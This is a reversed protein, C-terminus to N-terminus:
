KLTKKENFQKDHSIFPAFSSGLFHIRPYPIMNTEIESFNLNQICNRACM